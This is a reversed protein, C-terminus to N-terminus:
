GHGSPVSVPVEGVRPPATPVRPTSPTPVMPTQVTPPRAPVPETGETNSGSNSETTSGSNSGVNSGTTPEPAPGTSPGLAFLASGVFLAAVGLASAAVSVRTRRRGARQAAALVGDATLGHPPAPQAGIYAFTAALDHEDMSSM